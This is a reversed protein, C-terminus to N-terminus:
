LILIIDHRCIQFISCSFSLSFSFDSPLGAFSLSFFISMSRLLSLYFFFLSCRLHFKRLLPSFIVISVALLALHFDSATFFFISVLVRAVNGGYFTYKPLEQFNWTLLWFLAAFFHVFSTHQVHLTAKQSILGLASLMQFVIQVFM